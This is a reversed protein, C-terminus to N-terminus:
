MLFFNLIEIKEFIAGVIKNLNQKNITCEFGLLIVSDAKGLFIGSVLFIIKQGDDLKAGLSVSWDQEFEIDPTRKCIIIEQGNKRKRDVWM